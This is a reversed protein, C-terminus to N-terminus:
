AFVFDLANTTSNYQLTCKTAVAFKTAGLTQSTPNFWAYNSKRAGETRTTDDATGSFLLRYQADATTNTQSVNADTNPNAPLTVKLTTSGVTGVTSTASWALTPNNATVSQHSQL